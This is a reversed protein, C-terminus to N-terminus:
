KKNIVYNNLDIVQINNEPKLNKKIIGPTRMVKIQMEGNWTVSGQNIKEKIVVSLDTLRVIVYEVSRNQSQYALAFTLPKNTEIKAGTGIETDVIKQLTNPKQKATTSSKCCCLVLLFFISLFRM